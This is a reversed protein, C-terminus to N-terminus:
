IATGDAASTTNAQKSAPLRSLVPLLRCPSKGPAEKRQLVQFFHGSIRKGGAVGLSYDGGVTATGDGVDRGNNRQNRPRHCKCGDSRPLHRQIQARGKMVRSGPCCSWTLRMPSYKAAIHAVDKRRYADARKADVTAAAARLNDGQTAAPMDSPQPPGAALLLMGSAVTVLPLVFSRRSVTKSRM